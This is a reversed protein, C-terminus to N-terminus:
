THNGFTMCPAVTSNLSPVADMAESCRKKHAFCWALWETSVTHLWHLSGVARMGTEDFGAVAASTVQTRIFEDVSELQQSCDNTINGLKGESFTNCGFLDSM